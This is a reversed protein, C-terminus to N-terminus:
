HYPGCAHLSNVVESISFFVGELVQVRRHHVHTDLSSAGALVKLAEHCALVKGCNDNM